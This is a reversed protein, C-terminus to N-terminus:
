IEKNKMFDLILKAGDMPAGQEKISSIVKGILEKEIDNQSPGVWPKKAYWLEVVKDSKIGNTQWCQELTFDVGVSKATEIKASNWFPLSDILLGDMDFIVAKIM